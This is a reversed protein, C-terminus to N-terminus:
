EHRVTDYNENIAPVSLGVTDRLICEVTEIWKCIVERLLCFGAQGTDNLFFRGSGYDVTLCLFVSGFPFSDDRRDNREM